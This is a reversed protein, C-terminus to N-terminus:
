SAFGVLGERVLTRVLTLKGEDDLEGPLDRVTFGDSALAAELPEAAFIPLTTEGGYAAVSVTDERKTVRYLVSRQRQMRSDLDLSALRRIEGLQGPLISHRTDLLDGIFHDLSDDLVLGEALREKLLKWHAEAESRDFGARAFGPPLGRRFEKDRLAVKAVAELLLDTWSRSLM